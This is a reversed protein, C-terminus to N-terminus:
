MSFACQPHQHSRAHATFLARLGASRHLCPVANFTIEGVVVTHYLVRNRAQINLMGRRRAAADADKLLQLDRRLVNELQESTQLPARPRASSIDGECQFPANGRAPQKQRPAIAVTQQTSAREPQSAATLQGTFSGHVIRNVLKRNESAIGGKNLM